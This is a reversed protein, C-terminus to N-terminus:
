EEEKKKKDSPPLPKLVPKHTLGKKVKKTAQKAEVQENKEAEAKQQKALIEKLNKPKAKELLTKAQESIKELDQTVQELDKLTSIDKTGFSSESLSDLSEQIEQMAKKTHGIKSLFNM